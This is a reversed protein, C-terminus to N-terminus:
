RPAIRFWHTPLAPLAFAHWDGDRQGPSPESPHAAATRSGTVVPRMVLGAHESRIRLEGTVAQARLPPKGDTGDVQAAVTVLLDKSERIPRGDLASVVVTAKPTDIALSVDGLVITRGGIWGYAAQTKPTDLTGVGVTFDRRLQGTDSTVATADAALFSRDLDTVPTAGPAAKRPADWDLEPLDPLAIEVRSQEALTRIAASKHAGMERDYLHERDLVVRYRRRAPEVHGERFALAAAPMLAVTAPDILGMGEYLRDPPPLPTSTYCYHMPADWGQLAAVAAFWVPGVFRDRVPPLLNWETITLPLGEVRGAAIRHIFNTGRRPDVDLSGEGDYSHVDIVDGVTLAPLSAMPDDGWFSTTAVPARLGLSRLRERMRLHFRAELENMVVKAPGHAWPQMAADLPLGHARAFPEVLGRLLERHQPAGTGENMLNGFHHTLDNENTVLVGVVGPDDAYRRGTYRNQRGLYRRAFDQMLAEIRPNVYNFGKLEGQHTALEEFGPVDDGERLHRGVHLDLWVYIGEDQLCKVWWDLKDLADDSLGQTDRAGAVFVNPDVWHSDHHHIRVLNFGLAAIRRAQAAITDRDAQFLSYAVVNTGWLRAPTGDAFVLRDGDVTVRGHVGAPRHGDNLHRLDVPTADWDLTAPFWPQKGAAYREALSPEVVGSAPLEMRMTVTHTGAPTDPGLLHARIRDRRGQEFFVRPLPPDFRVTVVEGEGVAWRVGAGDPLLEPDAYGPRGRLPDPVLALEPGGGIVGELDREVHLTYRVVLVGPEAPEAVADIRSHFGPVDITFRARGGEAPGEVITPNAWAWDAGHFPYEMRLLDVGHHRLRVGGSPGLSATWPAIGATPVIIPTAEDAAPGVPLPETPRSGCGTTISAAALVAAAIAIARARHHM